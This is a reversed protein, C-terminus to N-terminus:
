LSVVGTCLLTLYIFRVVTWSLTLHVHVHMDTCQVHIENEQNILESIPTIVCHVLHNDMRRYSYHPVWFISRAAIETGREARHM